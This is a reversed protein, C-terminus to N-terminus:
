LTIRNKQAVGSDSLVSAWSELGISWKLVRLWRTFTFTLGPKRVRGVMPIRRAALVALRVLSACTMALRYGAAYGAGRTRLLFRYVSERMAVDHFANDDCQDTSRGGYHVITAQPVQYIKWGAKRIKYCLDIDEGYMFYGNSFGGVADLITRPVMVCAGSLAEVQVPAREASGHPGSHGWLRAKPFLAKIRENDLFQNLITPFPQVCETQPSLDSNLLRCGVVGAATESALFALMQEIARSVLLTDPNLFLVARGRSQRAGLNNAGGFGLNRSSAIVQIGAIQRLICVSDDPSANDVVIIEYTIGSTYCRISAVCERTLEASKWNVIVVSLDM